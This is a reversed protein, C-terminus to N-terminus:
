RIDVILGVRLRRSAVEPLASHVRPEDGDPEPRSRLPTTPCREAHRCGTTM